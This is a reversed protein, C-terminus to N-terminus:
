VTYLMDLYEELQDMSAPPLFEDEDVTGPGEERARETERPSYQVHTHVSTHVYTHTHIYSHLYTPQIYTLTHM